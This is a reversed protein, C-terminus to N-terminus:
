IKLDEFKELRLEEGDFVAYTNNVIWDGLNIYRSTDNLPIDMPLHRHGMLLYNYPVDQIKRKAYQLLWEKEEGLFKETRPDTFNSSSWKQAIKIGIDPHLWKFLFRCIPNTFIMKLFKYKSDGPGKGDGHTVLFKKDRCIFEMKDPVLTVGLEQSLYDKMWLDHNGKFFCVDIGCEKLESVKALFRVFFKPVALEYEFWFDFIDGVFFVAQANDKAHDLFAIITRERELSNAYGLAGLHLDSLFYLKKDPYLTLQDM